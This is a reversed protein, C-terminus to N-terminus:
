GAGDTLLRWGPAYNGHLVLSAAGIAGVTDGIVSQEIAVRRISRAM